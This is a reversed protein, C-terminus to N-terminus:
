VRLRRHKNIPCNITYRATGQNKSWGRGSRLLEALMREITKPDSQLGAIMDSLSCPRRKLTEIIVAETVQGGSPAQIIKSFDAIVEAKPGFHGAISELQRREVIVADPEATPRVATNLQIRDPAIREVVSKIKDVQDDSTNIGVCFFLELWIQGSYEKRFEILGNVLNDFTVGEAPRNMRVFMQQDGADLSPLILDAKACQSRVQPDSLLTGNTIVAVPIDTIEKIRDILEGLQSNLTPEGSGSLTIYDAKVGKAVKDHLEALVKQIDIYPKRETTPEANIGLQCYLCNQTCTKLPVMDVGLSLGLRRSPVPGFLITESKSM